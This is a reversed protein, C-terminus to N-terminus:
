NVSDEICGALVLLTIGCSLFMGSNYGHNTIFYLVADLVLFGSALLYLKNKNIKM